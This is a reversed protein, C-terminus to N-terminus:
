LHPLWMDTFAKIIGIGMAFTLVLLAGAMLFKGSVGKQKQTLFYLELVVIPILYQGFNWTILFPGSFTEWNIGVGGTLFVWFMLGTRFFWTGNVALFLRMAWRRHIDFKRTHAYRFAVVAFVMMLLANIGVAIRQLNNGSSSRGTMNLYLGSVGMIFAALIFVRGNWRHFRPIRNRIQPILQLTGGFTIIAAFLLHAGLLLNGTINGEEYGHVMVKNWGEFDGRIAASGYLVLIYFVFLWMGAAAVLFWFAATRNLAANAFSDISQGKLLFTSLSQHLKRSSNM